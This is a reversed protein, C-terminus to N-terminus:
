RHRNGHEDFGYDERVALDDGVWNGHRDHEARDYSHKDYGEANYGLPDYGYQNVGSRDYGNANKGANNYGDDDFRTGNRHQKSRNFGSNNYGDTGFGFQDYGAANFGDRNFGAADFGSRDYGAADYGYEDYTMKDYLDAVPDVLVNNHTDYPQFHDPNVGPSGAANVADADPVAGIELTEGCMSFVTGDVTKAQRCTESREDAVAAAALVQQQRHFNVGHIPCRTAWVTGESPTPIPNMEPRDNPYRRGNADWWYGNEAYWGRDYGGRDLGDCDFGHHDLGLRNFGDRNYGFQNFGDRDHGDVDYGNM